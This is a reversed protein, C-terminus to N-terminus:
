VSRRRIPKLDTRINDLEEERVGILAIRLAYAIKITEVGYKDAVDCIRRQGKNM